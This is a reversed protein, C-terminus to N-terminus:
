RPISQEKYVSNSVGDAPYLFGTIASRSLFGDKFDIPIVNLKRYKAQIFGSLIDSLM